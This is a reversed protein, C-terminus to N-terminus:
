GGSKSFEATGSMGSLIATTADDFTAVIKITQSIPDVSAGIRKVRAMHVTATEDVAFTLPADADLWRVWQSPVVLDIELNGEAVIGIFPKGPQPTEFAHLSLELVRGDYPAIVKCQDLRVRMAEAEAAAKVVRSLSVEFDHRGVAQVKQLVRNNDLTLKMEHHQAEAAALEARPRRCDFEVLVDGQKFREGELFAVKAVRMTLETSILATDVARIIGRIPEKAADKSSGEVNSADRKINIPMSQASASSFQGSATLVLIVWRLRHVMRPLSSLQNGNHWNLRAMVM